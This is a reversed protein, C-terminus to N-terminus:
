RFAIYASLERKLFKFHSTFEDVPVTMAKNPTTMGGNKYSHMAWGNFVGNSGLNYRYPRGWVVGYAKVGHIYIRWKSVKNESRIDVYTQIEEIEPYHAQYYDLLVKEVQDKLKATKYENQFAADALEKARISEVRKEDLDILTDLSETLTNPITLNM